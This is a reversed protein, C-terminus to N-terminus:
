SAKFGECPIQCTGRVSPKTKPHNTICLPALFYEFITMQPGGPPINSRITKPHIKFSCSCYTFHLHNTSRTEMRLTACGSKYIYIYIYVTGARLPPPGECSQPPAYAYTYIYIYGHGPGQTHRAASPRWLDPLMQAPPRLDGTGATQQHKRKRTSGGM